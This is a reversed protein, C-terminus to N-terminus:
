VARRSSTAGCYRSCADPPVHVIGPFRAVVVDLDHEVPGRVHSLRKELAMALALQCGASSTSTQFSSSNCRWAISIYVLQPQNKSSSDPM